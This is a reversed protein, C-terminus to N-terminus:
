RKSGPAEGSTAGLGAQRALYHNRIVRAIRACFRDSRGAQWATEISRIETALESDAFVDQVWRSFDGHELHSDFTHEPAASLMVVLDKLSRARQGTPVGNHVFVFAIEDSSATEFPTAKHRVHPTVRSALRFRVIEGGSEEAGPLLAAEDIELDGLAASWDKTSRAGGVLRRLAEAETGESCGTVLVAETAALVESGLEAARHSVLMHGGAGLDLLHLKGPDLFQAEDIVLRHPLGSRRRLEAIRELLAGVFLHKEDRPVRLLNVVLSIDPYSLVQEIQDVSPRGEEENVVIVGPLRELTVYDGEPDIVCLSYHQLMLQECLLGALWSKGSHRDGVILMNRGRPTLALPAGDPRLGLYLAPGKGQSLSFNPQTTVRDIFKAVAAPGMGQLVEDAARQLAPSGWAVAVGIECARLLEHDNEGNGVAVANHLSVRLVRAAARLGTRKSVAEPLVMLRAQNFVLVLPLELDHIVSLVAQAYKAELEVLCTGAVFPIKRRTLEPVLAPELPDALLIQRDSDPFHLVAGNEAVVADFADLGGSVRQLDALIRGTVLVLLVDTGSVRALARRVEENLQDREAITGDYDLALLTLRM